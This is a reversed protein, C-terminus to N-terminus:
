LDDILLKSSNSIECFEKATVVVIYLSLKSEENFELQQIITTSKSPVNKAHNELRIFQRM